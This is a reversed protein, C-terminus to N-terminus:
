SRLASSLVHSREHGEEMLMPPAPLQITPSIVLARPHRALPPDRDAVRQLGGAGSTSKGAGGAM